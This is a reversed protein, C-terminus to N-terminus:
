QSRLKNDIMKGIDTKLDEEEFKNCVLYTDQLLIKPILGLTIQTDVRKYTPICIKM